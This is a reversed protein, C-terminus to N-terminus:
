DEERLEAIKQVRQWWGPIQAYAKYGYVESPFGLALKTLNYDDARKIAEFLATHFDGLMRYQWKVIWTEDETLNSLNM